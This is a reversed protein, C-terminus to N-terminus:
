GDNDKPKTYDVVVYKNKASNDVYTAYAKNTANDILANGSTTLIKKIAKTARPDLKPVAKKITANMAKDILTDSVVVEKLLGVGTKYILGPKKSTSPRLSTLQNSRKDLRDAEKKLDELSMTDKNKILRAAEGRSQKDLASNSAAKRLKSVSLTRNYYTELEKDDMDQPRKKILTGVKKAELERIKLEKRATRKKESATKNKRIRTVLKNLNRRVGWKMGKVGYHLLVDSYETNM